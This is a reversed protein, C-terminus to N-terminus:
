QGFYFVLYAILTATSAFVLAIVMMLALIRKVLNKSIIKGKKTKVKDKNKAIKNQM